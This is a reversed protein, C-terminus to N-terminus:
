RGALEVDRVSVGAALDASVVQAFTEAAAGVEIRVAARALVYVRLNNTTPDAPVLFFGDRDRSYGLAYGCLLEGDKFRVAVKKGQAMPVDLPPFGRYDQRVHDGDLNRVFFLAKLETLRVEVSHGETSEIRFVPRLPSFDRTTGKVRRGDLLGAVVKNTDLM